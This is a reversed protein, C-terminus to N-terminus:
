FLRMMESCKVGKIFLIEKFNLINEEQNPNVGKLNVRKIGANMYKIKDLLFSKTTRASLMLNNIEDEDEDRLLLLFFYFM